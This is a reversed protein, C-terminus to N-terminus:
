KLNIEIDIDSYCPETIAIQAGKLLHEQEYIHAWCNIRISYNACKKSEIGVKSLANMVREQWYTHREDGIKDWYSTHRLYVYGDFEWAKISRPLTIMKLIRVEM